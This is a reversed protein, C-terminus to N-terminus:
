GGTARRHDEAPGLSPGIAQGIAKSVGAQGRCGNVPVPTLALSLPGKGSEAGTPEVHEDGGIDRRAPDVDVGYGEDDM